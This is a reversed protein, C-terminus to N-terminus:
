LIKFDERTSSIDAFGFLGVPVSLGQTTLTSLYTLFGERQDFYILEGNDIEHFSVIKGTEDIWVSYEDM